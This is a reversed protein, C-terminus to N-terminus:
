ILTKRIFHQTEMPNDTDFSQTSNDWQYRNAKIEWGEKKRTIFYQNFSRSRNIEGPSKTSSGSLAQVFPKAALSKSIGSIKQAVIRLQAREEKTLGISIRKEIDKLERQEIIETGSIGNKHLFNKVNRVIEDPKDLGSRLLELVGEAIQRSDANQNKSKFMKTFIQALTTLVKSWREGNQDEFQIPLSHLGIIRRFYNILYRNVARRDFHRGYHHVDFSPIHKHGCLMLDFDSLAVNRFVIDRHKITMFYDSAHEPPEFLYHHMVIIKLSQAFKDKDIFDEGNESKALQGKLGLDHWELLKETQEVTLKGKAIAEDVRMRGFTSDENEETDGLFCSDVFALYLGNEGKEIWRYYSGHKQPIANNNFAFNYNELSQQRRDLLTGSSKANWADHNGPVVGCKEADIKLGTLRGQGIPITNFIYGSANILSQKDGHNSVDGSIVVFDNAGLLRIANELGILHAVSHAHAPNSFDTGESFHLDSIHLITFQDSKNM